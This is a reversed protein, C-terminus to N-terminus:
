GGEDTSEPWGVAQIEKANKKNMTWCVMYKCSVHFICAKGWNICRWQIVHSVKSGTTSSVNEGIRYIWMNGETVLLVDACWNTSYLHRGVRNGRQRRKIHVTVLVCGLSAVPPKTLGKRDPNGGAIRQVRLQTCVWKYNYLLPCYSSVGSIGSLAQLMPLWFIFSRPTEVAALTKLVVATRFSSARSHLPYALSIVSMWAFTSRELRCGVRVSIIPCCM